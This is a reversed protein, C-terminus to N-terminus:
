LQSSPEFGSRSWKKMKILSKLLHKLFEIDGGEQVNGMHYKVSQTPRCDVHIITFSGHRKNQYHGFLQECFIYQIINIEKLM